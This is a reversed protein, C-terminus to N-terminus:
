CGCEGAVPRAIKTLEIGDATAFHGLDPKTLHPPAPSLSHLRPIDASNDPSASTADSWDFRAIKTLETGDAAVFQGLNGLLSPSCVPRGRDDATFTGRASPPCGV